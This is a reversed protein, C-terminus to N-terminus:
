DFLGDDRKVLDIQKLKMANPIKMWKPDRNNNNYKKSVYIGRNMNIGILDGDKVLVNDFTLLKNDDSKPELKIWNPNKINNNDFCHIMGNKDVGCVLKNDFSIKELNNSLLYWGGIEKEVGQEDEIVRVKDNYYEKYYIEDDETIIYMNKGNLSFHKVKKDDPIDVIEWVPDIQNSRDYCYIANEEEDDVLGCIINGSNVIRTFKKLKNGPINMINWNGPNNYDTQYDNRFYLNGNKDLAFIENDNTLLVQNVKGKINNWKSDSRFINDWSCWLDNNETVGCMVSDTKKFNEQKKPKCIIYLLLIILILIIINM